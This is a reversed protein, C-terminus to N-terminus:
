RQSRTWGCGGPMRLPCGGTLWRDCRRCSTRWLRWYCRPKPERLRWRLQRTPSRRPHPVGTPSMASASQREASRPSPAAHWSPRSRRTSPPRSTRSRLCCRRSSRCGCAAPRAGRRSSVGSVSPRAGARMNSREPNRSAHLFVLMHQTCSWQAHLRVHSAEARRSAQLHRLFPMGTLEKTRITHPAEQCSRRTTSCTCSDM